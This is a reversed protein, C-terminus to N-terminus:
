PGGGTSNNNAGLEPQSEAFNLGEAVVRSPEDHMEFLSRMVVDCNESM